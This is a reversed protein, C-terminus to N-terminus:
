SVGPSLSRGSSNLTRWDTLFKGENYPARLNMVANGVARWTDTDQALDIWDTGTWGYLHVFEM